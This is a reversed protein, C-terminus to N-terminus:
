LGAGVLSERRSGRRVGSGRRTRPAADAAEGETVASLDSGRRGGRSARLHAEMAQVMRFSSTRRRHNKNNRHSHRSPPCCPSCLTLSPYRLLCVFVLHMCPTSAVGQHM